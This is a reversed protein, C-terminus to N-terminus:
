AAAKIYATFAAQREPTMHSYISMIYVEKEERTAKAAWWKAEDLLEFAPPMPESNLPSPEFTNECVLERTEEDLSLLAAYALSAREKESLKAKVITRFDLWGDAEGLTLAYVICRAIKMHTKSAVKQILNPKNM